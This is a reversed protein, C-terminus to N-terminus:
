ALTYLLVMGLFLCAAALVLVLITKWNEPPDGWEADTSWDYPQKPPSM